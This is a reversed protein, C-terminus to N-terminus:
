SSKEAVQRTGDGLWAESGELLGVATGLLGSVRAGLLGNSKAQDVDVDALM